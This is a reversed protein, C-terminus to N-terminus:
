TMDYYVHFIMLLSFTDPLLSSFSCLSVVDAGYIAPEMEPSLRRWFLRSLEDIMEDSTNNEPYKCNKSERDEVKYHLQRARYKDAVIRFEAFTMPKVMLMTYEYVGGIGSPCQKIPAPLLTDGM